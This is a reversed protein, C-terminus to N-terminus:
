SKHEVLGSSVCGYNKLEKHWGKEIDDLRERIYAVDIPSEILLTVERPARDGSQDIIKLHANSWGTKAEIFYVGVTVKVTRKEDM